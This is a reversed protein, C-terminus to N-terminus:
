AIGQGQRGGQPQPSSATANSQAMWRFTLNIRPGVARKTKALAHQWDKQSREFMWLLEGAVLDWGLSQRGEQRKSRIRFRRTAGFSLSAVGRHEGAEYDDDSHWGMSDVGDRYLNLLVCNFPQNLRAVLRRRLLDIDAPLPKAAHLVGSYSYAHEGYYAIRRPMPISRGYMRFVHSEWPTDALLRLEYDRCEALSCFNAIRQFGAPLANM